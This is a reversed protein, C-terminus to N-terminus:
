EVVCEVESIACLGYLNNCIGSWIFILPTARSAGVFVYLIKKYMVTPAGRAAGM